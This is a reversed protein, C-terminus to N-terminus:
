PDREGLLHFSLVQLTGNFRQIGGEGRVQEKAEKMSVEGSLGALLHQAGLNSTMIIVTNSFDM